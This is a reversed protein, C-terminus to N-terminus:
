GLVKFVESLAWYEPNGFGVAVARIAEIITIPLAISGAVALCGAVVVGIGRLSPEDWDLDRNLRTALIFGTAALLAAVVAFGIEMYAEIQAQQVLVGWLHTTTTGFREALIDLVANVTEPIKQTVVEQM